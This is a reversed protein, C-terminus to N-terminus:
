NSVQKLAYGAAITLGVGAVVGSVFWFEGTEYWSVPKFNRQLFEIHEDRIKLRENFEKELSTLMDNRLKIESQALSLKYEWCSNNYALIRKIEVQLTEDINQLGVMLNAAAPRTLFTGELALRQNTTTDFVKYRGGIDYVDGAAGFSPLTLKLAPLDLFDCAPLIIKVDALNGSTTNAISAFAPSPTLSTCLFNFM